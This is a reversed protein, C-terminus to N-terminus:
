SKCTWVPSVNRKEQLCSPFFFSILSLSDCPSPFLFPFFSFSRSSIKTWASLPFFSPPPPRLTSSSFLSLFFFVSSSSFIPYVTIHLFLLSANALFLPPPPPFFFLFSQGGGEVRQYPSSPFFTRRTALVLPLPSLSPPTCNLSQKALHRWLFFLLSFLNFL